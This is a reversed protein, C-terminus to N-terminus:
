DLFDQLEYGSSHSRLKDLASAEIQRIRERTVQFAKGVEALTWTRGDALGYRLSLVTRERENLRELLDEVLESLALRSAIDPPALTTCDEIVDGLDLDQGEHPPLDLSVPELSAKMLEQVKETSIHMHKALEEVTPERGLEQQLHLSSGKLRNLKDGLHVPLRITRGQDAIARTIAQRIWWFAYTSFRYGRTSDFKEVARLLGLNGEQILDELALGRGQYRKAVSVVLKLNAEVFQSRVHVDGTKIQMAMRQEDEATLLPRAGIDNLYQGTTDRDDDIMIQQREKGSVCCLAPMSGVGKGQISEVLCRLRIVVEWVNCNGPACQVCSTAALGAVATCIYPNILNQKSSRCTSEPKGHIIRALAARAGLLKAM